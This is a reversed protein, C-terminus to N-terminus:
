IDLTFTRVIAMITAADDSSLFSSSNGNAYVYIYPFGKGQANYVTLWTYPPNSGMYPTNLAFTDQPTTTEALSIGYQSVGNQDAHHTTVLYVPAQKPVSKVPNTNPVDAMYYLNDIPLKEATLYELTTCANGKQFPVDKPDPTCWGGKGGANAYLNLVTGSPSTLTAADYGAEGSPAKKTDLVWNPPYMISFHDVSSVYTKWGAYPNSASESVPIIGHAAVAIATDAAQIATTSAKCTSINSSNFGEYGYFYDGVTVGRPYEDVYTKNTVPDVDDPKSRFILAVASDQGHNNGAALCGDGDLSKLGLYAQNSVGNAGVSSVGMVYYADKITDSLPLKVGWEKITLYSQSATTPQTSTATNTPATTKTNTTANTRLHYAAMGSGGIILLFLLAAGVFLIHRSRKPKAPPLFEPRNLFDVHPAQASTSEELASPAPPKSKM